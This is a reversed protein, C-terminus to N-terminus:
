CTGWLRACYRSKSSIGRLVVMTREHDSTDRTNYRYDFGNLCAGPHSGGARRYTGVLGREDALLVGRHHHPREGQSDEGAGHCVTDHSAFAGKHERHSDVVYNGVPDHIPDHWDFSRRSEAIREAFFLRFDELFTSRVRERSLFTVDAIKLLAQADGFEDDRVAHVLAGADETVGFLSLANSIIKQRTGERLSKDELEYSLHM